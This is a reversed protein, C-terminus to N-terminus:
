LMSTGFQLNVNLHYGSFFGDNLEGHSQKTLHVITDSLNQLFTEVRAVSRKLESIDSSHQELRIRASEVWTFQMELCRELVDLHKSSRLESVM